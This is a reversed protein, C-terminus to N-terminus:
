AIQGVILWLQVLGGGGWKKVVQHKGRRKADRIQIKKGVLTSDIGTQLAKCFPNRGFGRRFPWDGDLGETV